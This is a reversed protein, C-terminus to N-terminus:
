ETRLAKIPDISAARRIPALAALLGILALLAVLAAVVSGDRQPQIMLISAVARRLLFTMLVGAGLGIALLVAIRTFMMRAIGARTSGLAM